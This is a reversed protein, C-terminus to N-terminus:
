NTKRAIALNPIPHARAHDPSLAPSSTPSPVMPQPPPEAFGSPPPAPPPLPLPTPAAPPATPLPAVPPFAVPPLPPHAGTPLQGGAIIVLSAALRVPAITPLQSPLVGRRLFIGSTILPAAPVESVAVHVDDLVRGVRRDRRQVPDDRVEARGHVAVDGSRGVAVVPVVNLPSQHVDRATRGDDARFTVHARRNVHLGTEGGALGSYDPRGPSRRGPSDTRHRRNPRM